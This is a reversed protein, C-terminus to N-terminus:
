KVCRAVYGSAIQRSRILLDGLWFLPCLLLALAILALAILRDTFFPSFYTRMLQLATAHLPGDREAIEVHGFDRLLLELGHRTYRFFDHPADHVGFVFPTSLLLVGGEKLVRRLEAVARKPSQVHELVEIMFIVDFAEDEFCTMECVDALVDPEHRPDIDMTVIDADHVKSVWADVPGGSGVHLVRRRHGRGENLRAIQARLFRYLGHRSFLQTFRCIWQNVLRPLWLLVLKANMPAKETM